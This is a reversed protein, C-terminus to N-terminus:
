GATNMKFGFLHVILCFKNIAPLANRKEVFDNFNILMQPNGVMMRVLKHCLTKSM